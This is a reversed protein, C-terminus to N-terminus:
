GRLRPALLFLLAGAGIVLVPLSVGFPKADVFTSVSPIAAQATVDPVPQTNSSRPANNIAGEVRGQLAGAANQAVNVLVGEAIKSLDAFFGGNSSPASTGAMGDLTLM